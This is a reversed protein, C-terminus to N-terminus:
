NGTLERLKVNRFSVENGHEQLLIHGDAWEGFQPIDKYKSAAVLKRFEESSREFEITKAGNLWFEVHKGRSLIRAHNWEGIAVTQKDAPAPILDYLSALKRNGDRGLTADPHLADDLIQFECGIASGVAAPKGTVKDIPSINPQVFIKIGSNAGPTLKFDAVLEFDSYRERTIIDGGGASEEGKNDNVTLIGDHITWGHDPFKDTKPSRWGEGTKGDWLVQWGAAKEEASLTNAATSESKIERIRINRFKAHLGVKKEDKNVGHVQLGIRGKLTMADNIEARPEGNLWTKISPGICLIRLHNWEGPKSLKRGIETFQNADGGLSGPFLWLRRMEDYIGATWMRNRATDMDIECQYGHMRDAPLSKSKTGFTITRADPFIDSRFQVGSNLAGDVQYDVEFEFDGFEGVPCLFSNGTNPVSEGVLVGDEVSYKAKGSHQEWGTLDKGNFLDRWGDDAAFATAALMSLSLTFAKNIINKM